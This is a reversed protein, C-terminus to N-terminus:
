LTSYSTNERVPEKRTNLAIGQICQMICHPSIARSVLLNSTMKIM